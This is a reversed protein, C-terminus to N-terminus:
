AREPASRYYYTYLTEFGIGAYLARAAPNNEMVQLYMRTAGSAQGWEALAHIVATAAGRRRFEPRTAMGFIGVWDHERVGMGIAGPKGDAQFEAFAAPSTMRRLIGRRAAADKASIKESEFYTAFWTENFHDGIRVSESRRSHTLKLVNALEAIQVSTRAEEVYGREILVQDLEVPLAAPCIQYRAPLKRKAYFAEVVDLKTKLSLGGNNANPWVSNARRTVGENARLLWGDLNEVEAARWANTALFEIHRVLDM